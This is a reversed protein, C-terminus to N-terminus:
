GEISVLGTFLLIITLLLRSFNRTKEKFGGILGGFLIFLSVFMSYTKTKKDLRIYMHRVNIERIKQFNTSNCNSNVIVGLRGSYVQLGGM